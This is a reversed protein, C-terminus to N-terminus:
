FVVRLLATFVFDLRWMGKWKEICEFVDQIKGRKLGVEQQLWKEDNERTWKLVRELTYDEEDLKQLFDDQTQKDRSV